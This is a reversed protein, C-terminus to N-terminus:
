SVQIREKNGFYYFHIEFELYDSVNYQTELKVITISISFRIKNFSNILLEKILTNFIAHLGNFGEILWLARYKEKLIIKNKFTINDPHLKSIASVGLVKLIDIIDVKLANELKPTFESLTLNKLHEKQKRYEKFLKDVQLEM